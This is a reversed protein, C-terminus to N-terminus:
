IIIIPKTYFCKKHGLVIGYFECQVVLQFATYVYTATHFKLDRYGLWFWIKSCPVITKHKRLFLEGAIENTEKAVLM